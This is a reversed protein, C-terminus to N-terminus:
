ALVLSFVLGPLAKVLAQLVQAPVAPFQGLALVDELELDFLQGLRIQRILLFVLVQFVLEVLQVIVLLNSFGGVEHDLKKVIVFM